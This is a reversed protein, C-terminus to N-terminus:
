RPDEAFRAREELVMDDLNVVEHAAAAAVIEMSHTTVVVQLDYAQALRRLHALVARQLAPHLSLEIEDILVVAGPRLRRVIEGFLTLIQQQGSPLQHPEVEDQYRPRVIRVHGERIRIRQDEGLIEEIVEVFPALNDRGDRQQELDLYNQWVWLQSLSGHWHGTPDFHFLWQPTQSPPEIAGRQEHEIWRNHPFHLLGGRSPEEGRIMSGVWRNLAARGGQRVWPKGPGGRQELHCIQRGLEDYGNPARDKRGLAIWLGSPLPDPAREDFELQIAAYGHERLAHTVPRDEVMDLAFSLLGEVVEFVSSKGSGNSGVLITLPRVLGTSEDAFAVSRLHEKVNRFHRLRLERVKM